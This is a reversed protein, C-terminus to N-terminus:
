PNVILDYKSEDLMFIDDINNHFQKLKQPVEDGSGKGPSRGQVGSPSKRGGPGRIWGGVMFDQIRAQQLYYPFLLPTVLM